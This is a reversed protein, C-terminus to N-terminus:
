VAPNSLHRKQEDAREILVIEPPRSISSPKRSQGFQEDRKGTTKDTGNITLSTADYREMLVDSPPYRM